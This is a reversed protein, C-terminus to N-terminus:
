GTLGIVLVWSLVKRGNEKEGDKEKEAEFEDENRRRKWGMGGEVKMKLSKSRWEKQNAVKTQMRFPSM